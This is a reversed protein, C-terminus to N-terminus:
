GLDDGVGIKTDIIKKCSKCQHIIKEDSHKIKM